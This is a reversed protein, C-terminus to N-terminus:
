GGVYKHHFSFVGISSWFALRNQACTRFDESLRIWDDVSFDHNVDQAGAGKSGREKAGALGEVFGFAFIPATDGKIVGLM